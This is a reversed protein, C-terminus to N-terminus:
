ELTSQLFKELEYNEIKYKVIKGTTCDILVATPIANIAYDDCVMSTEGVVINRWKLSNETIAKVCDAKNDDLSVGLIEFGNSHYKDYLVKLDPMSYICPMCWSAWFDLLLYRNKSNEIITRLSLEEGTTDKATFDIYPQGASVKLVKENKSKMESFYEKWDPFLSIYELVPEPKWNIPAYAIIYAGLANNENKSIIERLFDAYLTNRNREEEDKIALIRRGTEDFGRYFDDIGDNLPTGNANMMLRFHQKGVVRIEINGEEIIFRCHIPKNPHTSFDEGDSYSTAINAIMSRNIRGEFCFKGNEILVSDIIESKYPASEVQLYAYTGNPFDAENGIGSIIYKVGRDCSTFTFLGVSILLVLFIVYGGKKM